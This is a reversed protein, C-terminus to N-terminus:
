SNKFDQVKCSIQGLPQKQPVHSQNVEQLLCYDLREKRNWYDKLIYEKMDSTKKCDHQQKTM